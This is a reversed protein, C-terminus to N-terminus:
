RAQECGKKTKSVRCAPINYTQPDFLRVLWKELLYKSPSLVYEIGAESPIIQAKSLFKVIRRDTYMGKNEKKRIRKRRTDGVDIIRLPKREVLPSWWDETATSIDHCGDKETTTAKSSKTMLNVKIKTVKRRARPKPHTIVVVSCVTTSNDETNDQRSSPSICCVKHPKCKIQCNRTSCHCPCAKQITKGDSDFRGQQTLKKTSVEPKPVTGQKIDNVNYQCSSSSLQPTAKVAKDKKAEKALNKMADGKYKKSKNENKNQTATLLAYTEKIIPLPNKM